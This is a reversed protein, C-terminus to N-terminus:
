GHFNGGLKVKDAWAIFSARPIMYRWGIKAFPFANNELLIHVTRPRVGLYCAVEQLTIMGNNRTHKM